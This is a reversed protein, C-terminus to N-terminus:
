LATWGGDVVLNAGTMYSSADSALFVAADAIEHPEAMRGLITRDAYRGAFGEDHGRKVGGPTLANVRINRGRYYAALYRTFGLIGAKTVSYAVPKVRRNSGDDNYIRQDPGVLGYTSCLNIVNGADAAEFVRCMAQTLLFTGTLDVALSREWAARSYQTFHQTEFARESEGEFKPDLAACNVLVDANGAVDAVFDIARAIAQEDLIDARHFHIQDDAFGEWLQGAATEEPPCVDVAVVRGGRRAFSLAFRAGLFGTGGSVVIVKGQLSFRDETM